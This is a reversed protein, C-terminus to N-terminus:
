GTVIISLLARLAVEVTISAVQLAIVKEVIDRSIFARYKYDATEDEFTEVDNFINEIDGKIRARVLLEDKNNRNDVISLFSNNLM